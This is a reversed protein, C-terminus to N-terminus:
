YMLSLKDLPTNDFRLSFDFPTISFKCVKQFPLIL